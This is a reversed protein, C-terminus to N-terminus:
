ASPLNSIGTIRDAYTIWNTASKYAEVLSDPVYISGYYGLYTSNVMPTMGFADTNNLNCVTSNETGVIFTALSQAYYFAGFQINSCKPLYVYSLRACGSFTLSYITSILPLSVSTIATRFFATSGIYSCKNANFNTLSLCSYFGYQGIYLCNPINAYALKKCESFTGNAISVCATLDVSELNTCKVFQSQITSYLAPLYLEKLSAYSMSITGSIWRCKPLSIYSINYCGGFTGQGVALCEPLSVYSLNTCGYFASRYAYLANTKESPIETLTTNSTFEYGYIYQSYMSAPMSTFRDAMSSWLNAVQYLSVCDSPVYISGYYGLYSSNAMPTLDFATANGTQVSKNMIYVESLKQCNRFTNNSLTQANGGIIFSELLINNLFLSSQFNVLNAMYVQSLTTGHGSLGVSSGLGMVLPLSCKTLNTTGSFCYAPINMLYPLELESMRAYNFATVGLTHLRPFSYSQIGCNYFVSASTSLLNPFDAFSCNFGASAFADNGAFSINPLNINALNTVGTFAGTEVRTANPFDVAQLNTKYYFAYSPVTTVNSNYYSELTNNLAKELNDEGGGSVNVTIDNPAYQGAISIVGNANITSAGSYTPITGTVDGSGNVAVKGALIDAASVTANTTDKYQSPIADITIDGSLYQSATSVTHAVTSPTFSMSGSYTPITGATKSGDSTYFYKGSLVDSATATTDSIDIGSSISDIADALNEINKDQPITGGKLDIANYADGLNAEISEITQQIAM